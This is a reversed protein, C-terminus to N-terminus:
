LISWSLGAETFPIAADLTLLDANPEFFFRHHVLPVLVGASLEVGLHSVLRARVRALGGLAAYLRAENKPNPVSEGQVRVNGLAGAACVSVVVREPGFGIPCVDARGALLSRTATGTSNEIQADAFVDVGLRAQPRFWAGRRVGVGTRLGGGAAPVALGGAVTGLVVVDWEVNRAADRRPPATQEDRAGAKPPELPAGLPAPAAPPVNTPRDDLSGLAILLLTATAVADCTKGRVTRSAVVTAESGAREIVDVTGEFGQNAPRLSVALRRSRDPSASVRLAAQALYTAATPCSPDTASFSEVPAGTPLEAASANKSSAAM